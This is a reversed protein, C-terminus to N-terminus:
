STSEPMPDATQRGSTSPAATGRRHLDLLAIWVAFGAMGNGYVYHLNDLLLFPVAFVFLSTAL